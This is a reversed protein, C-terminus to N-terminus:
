LMMALWEKSYPEDLESLKVRKQDEINVVELDSILDFRALGGTFSLTGSADRSDRHRSPYARVTEINDIVPGALDNRVFFANIGNSNTGVFTYGRRVALRRLAEISCGFFLGSHHAKFRTFQPDYPVSIPYRDGLIPNYECIVIAPEVAKIRDWIWYDNGDIDISLIGLHGGFGASTILENINEATVFAAKATLDFMWYLRENRLGTMYSENGDLVLGKWNRNLLLFRCNAERFTEVGFEVFRTNPVNVHAALWEIIGDEGWQSFVRFEVQSLDKIKRNRPLQRASMQGTLLLSREAFDMLNLHTALGYGAAQGVQSEVRRLISSLGSTASRLRAVLGTNLRFPMRSPEMSPVTPPDCAGVPVISSSQLAAFLERYEEMIHRLQHLYRRDDQTKQAAHVRSCGLMDPLHYATAGALSMRLWLDYDMAYYLHRKLYAGSAEWIRRSFFTEPQFFYHGRQWSEMFRLMDLYSLAVPGGFRLATHHRFLEEPRTEGIRVCGGVILDARSKNYARAVKELAGPELLDDSCLWNMVEGTALAFGKNLADSQGDDPEIIVKSLRHRYREIIDVSGDTSGGDVVIYELNEYGQDLVSKLCAELYTAQNFSVTVISIRPKSSTAGDDCRRLRLAPPVLKLGMSTHAAVCSSFEPDLGEPWALAPLNLASDYDGIMTLSEVLSPGGLFLIAGAEQLREEPREALWKLFSASAPRRLVGEVIWPSSRGYGPALVVPERGALRAVEAMWRAENGEGVVVIPGPRSSLLQTLKPALLEVNPSASGTTFQWLRRWVSGREEGTEREGKETSPWPTAVEGQDRLAFEFRPRERPVRNPWPIMDNAIEADILAIQRDCVAIVEDVYRRSPAILKMPMNEGLGRVEVCRAKITYHM